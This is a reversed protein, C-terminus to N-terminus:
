GSAEGNRKGSTSRGFKKEFISHVVFRAYRKVEIHLGDRSYGLSLAERDHSNLLSAFTELDMTLLWRGRDPRTALVEIPFKGERDLDYTTSAPTRRVEIGYDALKRLLETEGGTGKQKSATM